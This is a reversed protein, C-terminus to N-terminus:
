PKRCDCWSPKSGLLRRKPRSRRIPLLRLKMKSSRVENQHELVSVGGQRCCRWWIGPVLWNAAKPPLHRGAPRCSPADGHRSEARHARSGATARGGGRVKEDVKVKDLAWGLAGDPVAEMQTGGSAQVFSKLLVAAHGAKETLRQRPVRGLNWGM